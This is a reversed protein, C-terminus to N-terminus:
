ARGLATAQAVRDFRELSLIADAFGQARTSLVPRALTIFKDSMAQASPFSTPEGSPDDHLREHVGDETTITVRAGFPHSRGIELKDDQVVDFKDALANIAADGLRTYDDWGFRGQDLALAGTFFMSFQGGVISTPHRKTAADGTLTIGNRHLGVEVRKVQDPTLNHERRLAIIADIAAHTYRCSPYPKVGIKMTEYSTGLGAVAKERHPTDSYGVLLGHKGEVSEIAGVFDNKALTAAIVGNMASAGVQYRKNWAGNVLFQLSGAAQSGSVGFAYVLQQESLGFLKGAAAAAGYTGATATPHFGRAYHSTPDLANGLRCCVEYGAVIATLVERGSAGVMEGVAFAAPVVPASPHLSSDAHTDDFDLSHGMTGNLLAAVAPTWTRGDGFVTAEGAADLKLAALMKVVSPTSEAERRARIASGLFDLTLVKARDLVEPPIDDYKLEAVYAALTATEQAM